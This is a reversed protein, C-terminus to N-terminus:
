RRPRCRPAGRIPMLSLGWTPSRPDESPRSQALPPGAVELLANPSRGTGPRTARFPRCSPREEFFREMGSPTFLVLVRIPRDELAQFCHVTWSSCVRVLRAEGRVYLACIAPDARFPTRSFVRAASHDPRKTAVDRHGCCRAHHTPFAGRSTARSVTLIPTSSLALPHHPNQRASSRSM